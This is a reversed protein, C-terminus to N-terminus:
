SNALEIRNIGGPINAVTSLAGTIVNLQSVNMTGSDTVYAITANELAIGTSTTLGNTVLSSNGNTLDVRFVDTDKDTVYGTTADAYVEASVALCFVFSYKAWHFFFYRSM